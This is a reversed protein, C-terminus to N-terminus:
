HATTTACGIKGVAALLAAASPRAAADRALCPLILARLRSQRWQAPQEAPVAEWPYQMSGSACDFVEQAMTLTRTQTLAEFAMVGLAWVDQSPQISIERNDNVALVVEPAAYALSCRPWKWEGATSKRM